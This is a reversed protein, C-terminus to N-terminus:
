NASYLLVKDGFFLAFLLGLLYHSYWSVPYYSGSHSLVSLLPWMLLIPAAKSSSVKLIFCFLYSPALCLFTSSSCQLHLFSCTCFVSLRRSNPIDSFLWLAQFKLLSPPSSGLCHCLIQIPFNLSSKLILLPM